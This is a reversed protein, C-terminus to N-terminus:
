LNSKDIQGQWFSNQCFIGKLFDAQNKMRRAVMDPLHVAIIQVSLFRGVLQGQSWRVLLNNTEENLSEAKLQEAFQRKGQFAGGIILIM